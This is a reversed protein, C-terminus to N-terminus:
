EPTLQFDGFVPLNIWVQPIDLVEEVVEFYAKRVHTNVNDDFRTLVSTFSILLKWDNAFWLRNPLVNFGWLCANNLTNM